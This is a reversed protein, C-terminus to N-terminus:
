RKKKPVSIYGGFKNKELKNSRKSYKNGKPTKYGEVLDPHERFYDEFVNSTKM